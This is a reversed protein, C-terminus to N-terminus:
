PCRSARSRIRMLRSHRPCENSSPNGPSPLVNIARQLRDVLDDVEAPHDVSEVSGGGAVVRGAWTRLEEVASGLLARSEQFVAGIVRRVPSTDAKRCVDDVAARLREATAKKHWGQAIAHDILYGVHYTRSTVEVLDKVILVFLATRFIKKVPFFALKKLASLVISEDRGSQTGLDKSYADDLPADHCGAIARVMRVQMHRLVWDDVFPLPILPTLGGLVAHVLIDRQAKPAIAAYGIPASETETM